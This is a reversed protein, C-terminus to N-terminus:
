SRSVDSMRRLERSFDRTHLSYWDVEKDEELSDYDTKSTSEIWYSKLYGEISENRDM